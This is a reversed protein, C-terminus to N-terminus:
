DFKYNLVVESMFYLSGCILVNDYHAIGYDIAQKYDEMTKDEKFDNLDIAENYPFTTVILEDCHKKLLDAM